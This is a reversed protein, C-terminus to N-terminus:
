GTPLGRKLASMRRGGGAQLYLKRLVTMMAKLSDQIPLRLVAANTSADDFRGFECRQFVNSPLGMESQVGNTDQILCQNFLISCDHLAPGLNLTQIACDQLTLGVIVQDEVDITNIDADVLLLGRADLKGDDRALEAAVVFCDAALQRAESATHGVEAFRQAT